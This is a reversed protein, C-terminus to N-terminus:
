HYERHMRYYVGAFGGGGGTLFALISAGVFVLVVVSNSTSFGAAELELVGDGETTGSLEGSETSSSSISSSSGSSVGERSCNERKGNHPYECDKLKMWAFRSTTTGPADSANSTAAKRASDFPWNSNAFFHTCWLKSRCYQSFSPL